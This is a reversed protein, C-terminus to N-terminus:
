ILIHYWAFGQLLEISYDYTGLFLRHSLKIIYRFGIAGFAGLTGILIAAIITSIHEARDLRAFLEQFQDHFYKRIRLLIYLFRFIINKNKNM